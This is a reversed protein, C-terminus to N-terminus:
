KEREQTKKINTIRNKIGKTEEKKEIEKKIYLQFQTAIIM